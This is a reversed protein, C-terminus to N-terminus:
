IVFLTKVKTHVLHQQHHYSQGGPYEVAETDALDVESISPLKRRAGHDREQLQMARVLEALGTDPPSCTSSTFSTGYGSEPTGLRPHSPSVRSQSSRPSRPTLLGQAAPGLDSTSYSRHRSQHVAEPKAVRRIVEELSLSCGAVEVMTSSRASVEASLCSRDEAVRDIGLLSRLVVSSDENSSESKSSKKPTSTFHTSYKKLSM